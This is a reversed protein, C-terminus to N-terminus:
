IDATLLAIPEQIIRETIVRPTHTYSILGRRQSVAKNKM